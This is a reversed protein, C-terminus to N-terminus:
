DEGAWVGDSEALQDLASSTNGFRVANPAPARFSRVGGGLGCAEDLQDLEEPLFWRSLAARSSYRVSAGGISQQDILGSPKTLRRELADAAASVFLVRNSAPAGEPVDAPGIRTGYRANLLSELVPLWATVRTTQATNLPPLFPTVDGITLNLAM